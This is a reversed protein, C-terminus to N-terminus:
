KIVRVSFIVGVFLDLGKNVGGKILPLVFAM